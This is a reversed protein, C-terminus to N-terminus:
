KNDSAIVIADRYGDFSSGKPYQSFHKGTSIKDASTFQIFVEHLFDIWIDRKVKRKHQKYLLYFTQMLFNNSVGTQPIPAIVPPLIGNEFVHTTYQILRKYEYDKMVRQGKLIGELFYLYSVVIKENENPKTSEDKKAIKDTTAPIISALYNRGKQSITYTSFTSDTNEHGPLFRYTIPMETVKETVYEITVLDRMWSKIMEETDRLNNTLWASKRMGIDISFPLLANLEELIFVQFANLKPDM